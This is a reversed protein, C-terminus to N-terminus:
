GIGSPCRRQSKVYELQEQRFDTKGVKTKIDRYQQPYLRQVSDIWSIQTTRNDELKETVSVAFLWRHPPHSIPVIDDYIATITELTKAEELKSM